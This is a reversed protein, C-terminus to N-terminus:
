LLSQQLAPTTDFPRRCTALLCQSLVIDFSYEYSYLIQSQGQPVTGPLGDSDRHNTDIRFGMLFGMLFGAIGLAVAPFVVVALHTFGYYRNPRQLTKAMNTDEIDSDSESDSQPVSAFRDLHVLDLISCM